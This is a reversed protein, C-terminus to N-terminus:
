PVTSKENGRVHMLMQQLPHTATDAVPRLGNRSFSFLYFHDEFTTLTVVSITSSDIPTRGPVVSAALAGPVLFNTFGSTDPHVFIQFM